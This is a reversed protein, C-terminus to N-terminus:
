RRRLLGSVAGQVKLGARVVRRERLQTLRRRTDRLRAHQDVLEGVLGDLTSALGGSTVEVVHTGAAGIPRVLWVSEGPMLKLWNAMQEGLLAGPTLRTVSLGADLLRQEFDEGYYRVHDIQGFRRIREEPGASPDEDTERDRRWPVQVIGLGGPKLVRAIERMAARDDPVHELVHFCTVLDVSDDGLPLDTVSAQVDVLRGDAGPDFDMRLHRNAGLRALLPTTQPSPAVDLLLDIEGLTPTLCSLLISLFRHRELSACHPCSADPRGGPGPAFTRPGLQGCVPCYRRPYRLTDAM